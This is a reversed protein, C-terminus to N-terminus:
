IFLFMRVKNNTVENFIITDCNFICIRLASINCHARVLPTIALKFFFYFIHTILFTKVLNYVSQKGLGISIDLNMFYIGVNRKM